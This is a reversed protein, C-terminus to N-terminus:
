TFELVVVEYAFIHLFGNYRNAIHNGSNNWKCSVNQKQNPAKFITFFMSVSLIKTISISDQFYMLRSSLDSDTGLISM